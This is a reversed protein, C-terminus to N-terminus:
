YHKNAAVQQSGRKEGREAKHSRVSRKGLFVPCVGGSFCHGPLAEGNTGDIGMHLQRGRAVSHGGHDDPVADKDNAPRPRAAKQTINDFDRWRRMGDRGNGLRKQGPAVVGGCRRAIRDIDEAADTGGVARRIDGLYYLPKIGACALHFFSAEM